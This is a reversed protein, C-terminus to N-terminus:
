GITYGTRQMARAREHQALIDEAVLERNQAHHYASDRGVSFMYHTGPVVRLNGSPVEMSSLLDMMHIVSVLRDKHGLMVRFLDWKHAIEYDDLLGMAMFTTATTRRNTDSYQDFHAKKVNESAGACLTEIIGPKVVQEIAAFPRFRNVIGIGIGLSTYFARHMTDNLLLAPAIAYRTEEGFSWNMPNLYFLTAGGMSHGVFNIVRFAGEGPQRRIKIVNIWAELAKMAAPPNATEMRPTEVFKSQGFGNHDLSIAVLNRNGRVVMGPLEEWIIHNGTWGHVFVVYGEASGLRGALQDDPLDYDEAWTVQWVVDRLGADLLMSRAAKTEVLGREALESLRYRATYTKPVEGVGREYYGGAWSLSRQSM